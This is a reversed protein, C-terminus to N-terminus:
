QNGGKPAYAYSSSKQDSTFSPIVGLIPYDWAGLDEERKIRTDVTMIIFITLMSLAAGLAAGKIVENEYNPWSRATPIKAFSIIKVSCGDVISEIKEPAIEAITNAIDAAMEADPSTVTVTFVETKNVAAVAIRGKLAAPSMSLHNEEIVRELIPESLIIAEYTNVLRASASIDASTISDSETTVKSNNAYMTVSAAYLPTVLLMARILLVLAGVATAAAIIFKKSWFAALIAFFDIEINRIKRKSNM